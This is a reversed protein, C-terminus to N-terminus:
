RSASRSVPRSNGSSRATPAGIPEQTTIVQARGTFSEGFCRVSGHGHGFLGHGLFVVTIELIESSATAETGDVTLVPEIRPERLTKDSAREVHAASDAVHERVAATRLTYVDISSRNLEASADAQIGSLHVDITQREIGVAEVAHQEVIDHFMNGIRRRQQTFGMSDEDRASAKKDSHGAFPSPGAVNVVFNIVVFGRQERPHCIM